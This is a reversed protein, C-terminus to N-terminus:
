YRDDFSKGKQDDQFHRIYYFPCSRNVLTESPSIDMARELNRRTNIHTAAHACLYTGYGIVVLLAVPLVKRSSIDDVTLGRELAARKVGNYYKYAYFIAVIAGVILVVVGLLSLNYDNTKSAIKSIYTATMLLVAGLCFNVFSWINKSNGM